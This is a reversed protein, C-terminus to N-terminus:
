KTLDIYYVKVLPVRVRKVTENTTFTIKTLFVTGTGMHKVSAQSKINEM